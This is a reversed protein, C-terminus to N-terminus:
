YYFIYGIIFILVFVIIWGSAWLTGLAVNQEFQIRSVNADLGKKNLAAEM